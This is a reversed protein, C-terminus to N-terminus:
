SARKMGYQRFERRLWLPEGSLADVEVPCCYVVTFVEPLGRRPGSATRGTCIAAPLRRLVDSAAYVLLDM